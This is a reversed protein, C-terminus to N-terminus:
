LEGAERLQGTAKHNYKFTVQLPGDALELSRLNGKIELTKPRFNRPASQFLVSRSEDGPEEVDPTLDVRNGDQQWKGNEVGALALIGPEIVLFRYTGDPLIELQARVDMSGRAATFKGEGLWAGHLTDPASSCATILFSLLTVVILIATRAM